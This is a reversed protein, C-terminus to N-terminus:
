REGALFRIKQVKRGGCVAASSGKADKMSFPFEYLDPFESLLEGKSDASRASIHLIAYVKRSIM